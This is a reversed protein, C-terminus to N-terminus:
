FKFFGIYINRLVFLLKASSFKFSVKISFLLSILVGLPFGFVKKFAAGKANLLMKNDFEKGSSEFPHVSIYFPLRRVNAGKKFLETTFIFEECSPLQSGLGFREDFLVDQSDIYEKSLIIELSSVKMLDIPNRIESSFSAYSKYDLGEPTKIKALGVHVNNSVLFDYIREFDEGIIINDDDSIILYEASSNAIAKNRSRSLGSSPDLVVLINSSFRSLEERKRMYLESDPANLLQHVIIVGVNLSAINKFVNEVDFIGDRCTSILIDFKRM